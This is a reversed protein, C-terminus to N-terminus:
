IVLQWKTFIRKAIEISDGIPEEPYIKRSFTFPQEVKTFIRQSIETMNLLINKKVSVHLAENPGWLTIQNRANYEYNEREFADSAMAKADRLWSGLLFHKESALIEELDDFIELLLKSNSELSPIDKTNCASLIRTYIVDATSQLAQRTVDTIDYQYLSSNGHIGSAALLMAWIETLVQRDYWTWTSIKLSPRRTVVYHGRIRETGTFNYITSGLSKWAKASNEDYYGYRRLAYTEFWTPLDMPSKRYAMENMLDYIVYNQNIGEPTLGTGIMTSGNMNRAEFVRENIISSSGFMGLVGGFNHLMCWIFPQGYYSSLREYQPFQESQLDLLIMRGIPVSTVFAKVRSKTWFPLDHYFLWGQMLWIASPDVTKMTSHISAGVNRLYELSSNTPLNENFTDCSYIHDTGFKEIYKTLFKQGVVLFLPDTPEILYPCCYKDEFDNWTGIRSMRANPYLRSFARPVLGAFAPLVPIIGLDRMMKLIKKQLIISQENWNASLPGAWGRINGMRIWPLFAPGGLHEDIESKTLNLESYVETWIAEQATFALALNIGNLAMWDINKQWQDWQWWVSSYGVTCVNQYYRFRDNSTVTINVDPLSDYNLRIQIGEWSVHANCYHKLYFHLGWTAAVGSTAIISIIGSALKNIQFTDKDSPGISPDISFSFLDGDQGLLREAVGKAAEEQITPIAQAKLHSLTNQFDDAIVFINICQLIMLFIVLTGKKLLYIMM